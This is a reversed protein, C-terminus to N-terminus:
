KYTVEIKLIRSSGSSTLVLNTSSGEWSWIADSSNTSGSTTTFGKNYNAASCTIDVKTITGGTLTITNNQYVRIQSSSHYIGNQSTKKEFLATIDGATETLSELNQEANGTWTSKIIVTKEEGPTVSGSSKFTASVAVNHAPMNFTYKDDAVFSTVDTGDV